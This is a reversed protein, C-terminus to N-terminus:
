KNAQTQKHKNTKTQKNHTRKNIAKQLYQAKRVDKFGSAVAFNDVFDMWTVDRMDM